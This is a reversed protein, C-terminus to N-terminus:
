ITNLKPPQNTLALSFKAPTIHNLNLQSFSNKLATTLSTALIYDMCPTPSPELFISTFQTNETELNPQSLKLEDFEGFSVDAPQNDITASQITLGKSHLSISESISDGSIIVTGSFEKEEARTLDLTLNYHNPTFTDLLRPVKTM